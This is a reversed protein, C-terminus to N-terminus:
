KGGLKNNVLKIKKGNKKASEHSTLILDLNHIAESGDLPEGNLISQAHTRIAERYINEIKEITIEGVETGRDLELRIKIPEDPHGSLQFLTGFSRIVGKTGYIEYGFNTLTGTLGGRSQNFAVRTSGSLGNEFRYSILAGEEVLLGMTKPIYVARVEMIKSGVLFEAMYFCHSGVDGLPGGIESPNACRWSTAEEPTSGYCFEMHTVINSTDGIVGEKVLQAAKRNFVNYVMMHNVGLSLNREKAMKRLQEAEELTTSIPKEILVHKGVQMAKMALPTHNLNNTAIYVAEINSDELMDDVSDYWKLGLKQAAEKRKSTEATVGKLSACSNEENFRLKDIIFGEKAIRSEVFNSFGIIGYTVKHQKNM